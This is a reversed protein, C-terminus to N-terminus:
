DPTSANLGIIMPWPRMQFFNTIEQLFIWGKRMKTDWIFPEYGDMLTPSNRLLLLFRNSSFHLGFFNHYHNYTIANQSSPATFCGWWWLLSPGEETEHHSRNLVKGRNKGKLALKKRTGGGYFTLNDGERVGFEWENGFLKLDWKIAFFVDATSLSEVKRTSSKEWM